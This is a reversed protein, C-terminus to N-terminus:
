RLEVERELPVDEGEFKLPVSRKPMALLALATVGASMFVALFAAHTAQFLGHTIFMRTSAAMKAHNELLSVASNVSAPLHGVLQTPPHSIWRALSRNALTGIVAIGVASGVSRSFLNSATAVGRRDRGVISQSSVLLPTAIFGLGVGVLLGFSCAVLIPSAPGLLPYLATGAITIAVGILTTSRFGIALYLRGALASSIPWGFLLTAVTLGAEIPSVGRVGEAWAPVYATLGYQVAGLLLNAMNAALMPRRTVVWSPIMPEASLHEVIAFLCIFLIGLALVLIERTDTWAWGSGGQLLGFILSSLGIAMVLSGAFDIRHEQREVTEHLRRSLLFLAVFGFPLNIYFIWRWTIYQTIAGGILPGLVSAVGWVGATYGQIKSREEISYLDGVVTQVIPIIAGAGLGQIARAGILFPMSPAIGCLVSALLFITVGTYLIPRRGYLDSLRGYIPVSVAQTLLYISFIWPFITFGGLNKVISPVATTVVTSDIAALALTVLLAILVNRRPDGRRGPAPAVESEDVYTHHHQQATMVRGDDRELIQKM